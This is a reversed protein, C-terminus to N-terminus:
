AAYLQEGSGFTIRHPTREVTVPYAWVVQGQDNRVLFTLREELEQLIELTRKMSLVLDRAVKEPPIPVGAYPLERVVYHHVRRHDPSMFEIAKKAKQRTKQIQKEWLFPPVGVMTRWFGTLLGNNM